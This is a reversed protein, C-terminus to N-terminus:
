RGSYHPGRGRRHRRRHGRGHAAPEEGRGHGGGVCADAARRSVSVSDSVCAAVAVAVATTMRMTVCVCVCVGESPLFDQEDSDTSFVMQMLKNLNLLKGKSVQHTLSVTIRDKSARYQKKSQTHACDRIGATAYQLVEKRLASNIDFTSVENDYSGQTQSVLVWVLLDAFGKASVGFLLLRYTWKAATANNSKIMYTVCYLFLLIGWYVVYVAINISNMILVRVRHQFTRSIGQKLLGYASFMVYVSYCYVSVLPIYLFIQM